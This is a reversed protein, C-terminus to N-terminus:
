GGGHGGEPRLRCVGLSVPPPTPAPNSCTIVVQKRSKCGAKATDAWLLSSQSCDSLWEEEGGCQVGSLGVSRRQEQMASSWGAPMVRGTAKGMQACAVSAEAVGFGDACVAYWSGNYNVELRGFDKSEIQLPAVMMRLPAQM